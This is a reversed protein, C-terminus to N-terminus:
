KNLHKIFADFSLSGEKTPKFVACCDLVEAFILAIEKKLIKDANKATFKHKQSLEKAWIYHKKAMPDKNIGEIDGKILFNSVISLEQKLRAPLIALGLVEILGINERKIHHYQPRSHFIGDQFEASIMNNRLALDMQFYKGERKAYPTITNHRTNNSHAKIDAKADSYNKWKKLILSSAVLIDKRNGILRIVSLHWDLIFCKLNPFRKLDFSKRVKTKYMPFLYNGGQYHDHNLISGGVIPLDANSGIFYHPFINLFDLLRIFTKDNIEMDRHKSDFIICHEQYYVYPSYQFYWDEGNLKLPIVRLTRRAPHNLSGEFGENEKCLLCKPYVSDNLCRAGQQKILAIEKPTKEPKSLNITIDLLGYRAKTKWSINKQIEETKIYGYQEEKEYMWSIASKLGQKKVINNFSINFDSPRQMFIGMIDSEFIDRAYPFDQIVKNKVAFNSIESLISAPYKPIQSKINSPKFFKLNLKSIILNAAWISDRESILKNSLAYNILSQIYYHIDKM